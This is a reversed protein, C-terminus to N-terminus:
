KKCIKCNELLPGKWERSIIKDEKTEKLKSSFSALTRVQSTTDSVQSYNCKCSIGLKGCNKCFLM